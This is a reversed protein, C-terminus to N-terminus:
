NSEALKTRHLTQLFIRREVADQEPGTRVGYLARLLARVTM